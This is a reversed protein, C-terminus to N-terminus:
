GRWRAGTRGAVPEGGGRGGARRLAGAAGPLGRAAGHVADRGERRALARVAAATGASLQLSAAAGEHGQVAPRPRDTPLELLPPAGALRERWFTAQSELALRLHERQWLAFDAYQAGPAALPSPEGACLARYLASLEGAFVGLSWGDAVVHHFALLLVHEEAGLRLLRARFLPGACLDFPTHADAEARREAERAREEEGLESLDEVPLAFDGAPHIVQVPEGEREAFTTRLAEHRRVIEGLAGELAGVDLVGRLRHARAVNYSTSEPELRQLLWLRQQSFSLPAETGSGRPRVPPLPAGAGAAEEVRAALAEVTPAEFLARLPLEVGCTDRIRAVVRTASLSHGGWRSSTTGRV